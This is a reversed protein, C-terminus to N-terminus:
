KQELKAKLVELELIKSEKNFKNKENEFKIKTLELINKTNKVDDKLIKFIEDKEKESFNDLNKLIFEQTENDLSSNFLLEAFQQSKTM